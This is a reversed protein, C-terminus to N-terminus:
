KNKINNLEKTYAEPMISKEGNKTWELINKPDFFRSCRYCSKVRRPARAAKVTHGQSCVGTWAFHKEDPIHTTSVKGTGGLMKAYNSWIKNHGNESGVIAHSIEHIITDEIDTWSANECWLASLSITKNKYNCVGARSLAKDFTFVWGHNDLNTKYFMENAKNRVKSLKENM